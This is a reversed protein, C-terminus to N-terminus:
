VGHRDFTMYVGEIPPSQNLVQSEWQAVERAADMQRKELDRVDEKSLDHLNMDQFRDSDPVLRQIQRVQGSGVPKDDPRAASQFETVAEELRNQMTIKKQVLYGAAIGLGIAWM